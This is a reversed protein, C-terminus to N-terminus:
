VYEDTRGTEVIYYYLDREHVELYPLIDVDNVEATYLESKNKDEPLAIESLSAINQKWHVYFEHWSCIRAMDVVTWINDYFYHWSRYM